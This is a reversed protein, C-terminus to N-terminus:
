LDLIDVINESTDSSAPSFNNQEFVRSQNIIM